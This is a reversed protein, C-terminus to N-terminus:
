SEILKNLDQYYKKVKPCCKINAYNIGLLFLGDLTRARSLAVYSQANCFVRSLDMIVNSLTSGQSKHITIAWALTLPYQQRRIIEHGMETEFSKRDFVETYGNDFLVSIKPELEIVVGRSGNVLEREFDLNAILMVQAGICLELMHPAQCSKDLQESEVKSVERQNRTQKNYVSDVSIFRKNQKGEAILKALESTNIREVDAKHPFLITPKVKETTGDFHVEGVSADTVLRENLIERTSTSVTGLRIEELLQKFVPDKQRIIENLYVTNPSIIRQWDSSEFCVRDAKIPELQAFDGCFIMQLGGFFCGDRFRIQQAVTNIKNFLEASMMSVEDIILVQTDKWRRLAKPNKVIINRTLTASDQDGTGIGAWSHITSGGIPAAAAGTLATVAVNLGTVGCYAVIQGILFSKGCGAPGTICMSKGQKFLDLAHQQGKTLTTSMFYNTSMMKNRKM